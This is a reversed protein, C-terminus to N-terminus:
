SFAGTEDRPTLEMVSTLPLGLAAAAVPGLLETAAPNWRTVCGASDTSVVAGPCADLPSAARQGGPQTV